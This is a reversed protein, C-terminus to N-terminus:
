TLILNNRSFHILRFLIRAFNLKRKLELKVSFPYINENPM